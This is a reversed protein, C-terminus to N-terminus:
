EVTVPYVSARVCSWLVFLFLLHILTCTFRRLYVFSFVLVHCIVSGGIQM